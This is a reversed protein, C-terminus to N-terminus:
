IKICEELIKEIVVEGLTHKFLIEQLKETNGAIKIQPLNLLLHGLRLGGGKEVLLCLTQNQLLATQQVASVNKNQDSKFLILAKLCAAEFQDVKLLQFNKVVAQLHYLHPYKKLIDDDISLGWQAAAVVFLEGWSDELLFKQDTLSFQNFSPISKAWKVALYLLKTASEFLVDQNNGQLQTPIATEESSTVEDDKVPSKSSTSLSESNKAENFIVKSFLNNSILKGIELNYASPPNPIFNHKYSENLKLNLSDTLNPYYHHPNPLHYYTDLPTFTTPLHMPFPFILENHRASNFGGYIGPQYNIAIPPQTTLNSGHV